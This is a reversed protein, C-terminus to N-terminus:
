ALLPLTFWFTSGEGTTSNVGVEGHQEQILMQSIYLGLGLGPHSGSPVAIEEAQYFREWIHVQQTESLGIGHDQVWVRASTANSSVGIQIPQEAPSYKLANAVYNTIVQKIRQADALVMLPAQDQIDLTITRKPSAAQQDQITEQVVAILNIPEMQVTFKGAEARSLDLLDNILRGQMQANKWGRALYDMIHSLANQQEPTLSQYPQELMRQIHRQSFQIAIQLATLPNKLEHTIIHLFADRQRDLEKHETIDVITGIYSTEGTGSHTYPSGYDEVERYVGDARRLRYESLFPRCQAAAQAWQELTRDRDDPHVAQIWIFDLSEQESLGTFTCWTTNFFTALGKVDKQWIMIPAHNALTCFRENSAQLELDEIHLEIEAAVCRALEQVIWIDREGWIRPQWDVVCLAGLVQNRVELPCGLYAMVGLDLLVTNAQIYPSDKTDNIVIPHRSSVVYQCLSHSLPMQRKSVWPEPLGYNSKVYQRDTDILSLLSVPTNLLHATLSTFRDYNEEDVSDLLATKALIRLRMPDTIQKIHDSTINM